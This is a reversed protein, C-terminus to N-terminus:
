KKLVALFAEGYKELKNQGVGKIELFALATQPQKQALEKLTQDSFIIYPPLNQEQALSLRLQRLEEFLADNEVLQKVVTQKRSVTEEGRLVKVGLPSVMLTPFQGDSPTLYGEATLYDILGTLDKQTWDKM